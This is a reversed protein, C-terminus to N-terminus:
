ASRTMVAELAWDGLAWDGLAWDALAWGSRAWSADTRLAARTSRANERAPWSSPMV